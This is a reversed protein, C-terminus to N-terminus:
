VFGITDGTSIENGLTGAPLEIVSRAKKFRGGIKGPKLCKEIGVVENEENVYIVDIDFKMFFTHISSCPQLHLAADPSMDKKFMLGKFRSWFDHAQKIDSAIVSGTTCNILQM